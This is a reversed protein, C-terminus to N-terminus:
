FQQAITNIFKDAQKKDYQDVILDFVRELVKRQESTLKLNINLAKYKTQNNKQNILASLKGIYDTEAIIASEARDILDSEGFDDALEISEDLLDNIEDYKEAEIVAKKETSLSREYSIKRIEKTQTASWEKLADTFEYYAENKEFDDRRANVILEEDIIHIEGILWGNFREEKFFQNCSFKDGILINGQRIRIGKITNNLITGFYNTKACWLVATLVDNRYFPVIEVDKISDENRKVRDSIFIDEYPKYLMRGNLSILYEPITYGLSQVKQAIPDQWRFERKYKLPAHQILYDEVADKDLLRDSCNVGVLEVSFYHKKAKEPIQKVSIVKELVENASDTKSSKDHLLFSLEKADFSVITKCSEGIFSTTFILTDCYGLGALRGIGRFGRSSSRDKQSNGIDTLRKVASDCRIGTGNDVITISNNQLNINIDIFFKDKKELGEQIGEDISDVSNQIYERYLDLPSAYMGNTLSELTYKGIILQQKKM